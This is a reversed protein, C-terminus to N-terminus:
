TERSDRWQEYAREYEEGSLVADSWHEPWPEGKLTVSRDAFVRNPGLSKLLRSSITANRLKLPYLPYDSSKEGESIEVGGIGYDVSGSFMTGKFFPNRFFTRNGEGKNPFFGFFTNTLQSDLFYCRGGFNAQDFSANDLLAGSFQTQGFKSRDFIANKAACIALNARIFNCDCLRARNLYAGELNAEFFSVNEFNGDELNARRLSTGSLDLKHESASRELEIQQATRAGIVKLAIAIDARPPAPPTNANELRKDTWNTEYVVKKHLLKAAIAREEESAPANNRIYACLIEMMRVHDRGKDYKVSDQAIREISLLGGIRVEINPETYEKGERKVTKEAGLQEVAKSIRDTIHGERQFGLSQYKIYTGWIVFPASLLAAILAGAGLNPSSSGSAPPFFVNHITDYVVAFAACLAFFFLPGIISVTWKAWTKHMVEPWLNPRKEGVVGLVARTILTLFLITSVAAITQLSHMSLTLTYTEQPM